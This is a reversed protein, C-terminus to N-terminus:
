EGGDVAGRRGGDPKLSGQILGPRHRRHWHALIAELVTELDQLGAPKIFYSGIGARFARAVHDPDSSSTLMFVSVRGLPAPASRIWELVELGTRRPMQLDLLVFSPLRPDISLLSIADEGDACSRIQSRPVGLRELSRKLMLRFDRDDDVILPHCEPHKPFPM